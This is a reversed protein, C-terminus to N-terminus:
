NQVLRIVTIMLSIFWPLLNVLWRALSLIIALIEESAFSSIGYLLSVDKVVALRRMTVTFSSRFLEDLRWYSNSTKMTYKMLIEDFLCDSWSAMRRRLSSLSITFGSM